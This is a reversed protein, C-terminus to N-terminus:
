ADEGIGSTGSAGVIPATVSKPVPVETETAYVAAVVPPVAVVKVAVDVGPEIVAVPDEGM